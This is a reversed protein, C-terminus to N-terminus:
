VSQVGMVPDFVDQTGTVEDTTAGLGVGDDGADALAPDDGDFAVVVLPLV